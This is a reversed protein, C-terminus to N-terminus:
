GDLDASTDACPQRNGERQDEQADGRQRRRELNAVLEGRRILVAVLVGVEVEALPHLM